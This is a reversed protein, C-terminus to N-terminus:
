FFADSMQGAHYGSESLYLYHQADWTSFATALSVDPHNPDVFNVQFEATFFPLLNYALFIVLLVAVKGAAITLLLSRDIRKLARVPKLRYSTSAGPRSGEREGGGAAAPSPQTSLM